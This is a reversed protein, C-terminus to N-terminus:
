ASLDETDEDIDFLLFDRTGDVFALHELAEELRGAEDEDITSELMQTLAAEAASGGLQGLSWIAARRVNADEDELLGLLVPIAQKLEVEGCARASQARHEPSTSRLEALLQPEWADNASRGMAILASLRATADGSHYAELILPAVEQRSSYGLAEITRLYIDADPKERALALLADEISRQLEPSIHGLEGAYVFAALARAACARVRADSDERALNLFIPVLRPDACEWLNDIAMCRVEWDPDNIAFRNIREFSFEIYENALRGLERILQRRRRTPLAPWVQKLAQMANRDLDSLQPLLRKLTAWKQTGLDSLLQRLFRDTM